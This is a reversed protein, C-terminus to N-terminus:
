EGTLCEGHPATADLWRLRVELRDAENCLLSPVALVDGLTATEAYDVFCDVARGALDYGYFM